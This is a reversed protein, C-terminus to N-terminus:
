PWKLNKLKKASQIKQTKKLNTNKRISLSTKKSNKSKTLFLMSKSNTIIYNNVEKIWGISRSQTKEESTWLSRLSTKRLWLNTWSIKWIKCDMWFTMIIAWIMKELLSVITTTTESSCTIMVVKSILSRDWLWNPQMQVWKMLRHWKSLIMWTMLYNKNTRLQTEKEQLTAASLLKPISIIDCCSKNNSNSNSRRCIWWRTRNNSIARWKKLNSCWIIM